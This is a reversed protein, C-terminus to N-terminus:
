NSNSNFVRSFIFYFLCQLIGRFLFLWKPGFWGMLGLGAHTRARAGVVRSLRVWRDAGARV